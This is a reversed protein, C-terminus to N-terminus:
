GLASVTYEANAPTDVGFDLGINTSDITVKPYVVEGTSTERVIVQLNATGLGHAIAFTSTAGDGFSSTTFKLKPDTVKVGSAGVTLSGGDLRLDAKLGSADDGLDISNTDQYKVDVKLGSSDVSLDATNSDQYKLVATLTGAGDDYTFDVTNSDTLMAGIVDQAAEAFDSIDTSAITGSIVAGSGDRKIFKGADALVTKLSALGIDQLTNDDGDITKNTLTQSGTLTAITNATIAAIDTLNSSYAQFTSDTVKLGGAGKTLTSGDLKVTVSDTDVQIGDGAGVDVTNGSKTLGAGAVVSGAGSFQTFVLSSTDLTLTADSTLVYGNDGNITGKEVFFFLGPKAEITEDLDAARTLVYATGADGVTTVTYIGNQSGTGQNKVLVRQGVTLTIDDISVAGNANATLTKAGSSYTADLAATTAVKVTDKVALGQIASDVYAKTAADTGSVPAGVNSIKNNRLNLTQLIKMSTEGGQPIVNVEQSYTSDGDTNRAKVRFYYTTGYVLSGVDYTTQTVNQAILTYPGNQISSQYLKYSTAEPSLYTLRAGLRLSHASLSPQSPAGFISSSNPTAAVETSLDSDGLANTSKAKFYYTTNNVLNDYVYPSGVGTGVLFYTGGATLSRYIKYSDAYSATMTLTVRQHEELKSVSPVDPSPTTINFTNSDVTVAGSTFRLQAGTINSNSGELATLDTYTVVGSSSTKTTTGGLTWGQTGVSTVTTSYQASVNNGYLDKLSLVPQTTFVVPIMKRRGAAPQTTLAMSNLTGSSPTINVSGTIGVDTVTVSVLGSKNLSLTPTAVGDTFSVSVAQSSSTLTTGNFTGYSGNPAQQINSITINKSGTYSTRTAGGQKATITLTVNNGVTPISNSTSVQFTTAVTTGEIRIASRYNGPYAATMTASIQLDDSNVTFPFGSNGNLGILAKTCSFGVWYTTGPVLTYSSTLPAQVLVGNIGSAVASGQRLITGNYSGARIQPTANFTRTDNTRRFYLYSVSMQENVTLTYGQYNAADSYGGGSISDGIIILSM